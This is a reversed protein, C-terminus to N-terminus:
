VRIGSRAHARPRRDLLQRGERDSQWWAWLDEELFRDLAIAVLDWPRVAVHATVADLTEVTQVRIGHGSLQGRWLSSWRGGPDALVVGVNPMVIPYRANM